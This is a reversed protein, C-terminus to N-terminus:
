VFCHSVTEVRQSFVGRRHQCRRLRRGLSTPDNGSSEPTSRITMPSRAIMEFPTTRAASCTVDVCPKAWQSPSWQRSSSERLKVQYQAVDAAGGGGDRECLYKGGGRDEPKRMRSRMQENASHHLRGRACIRSCVILAKWGSSPVTNYQPTPRDASSM